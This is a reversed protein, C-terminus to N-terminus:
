GPGAAIVKLALGVMLITLMAVGLLVAIQIYEDRRLKM